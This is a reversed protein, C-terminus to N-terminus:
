WNDDSSLVSQIQFHTFGRYQLFRVQKDLERKSQPVDQGFRKERLLHVRKIWDVDNTNLMESFLEREIGRKLLEQQIHLPGFGKNIRARIYCEAFRADSLLNNQQLQIVLNDIVSQDFGKRTLKQRLELSAHERRSLYEIASSHAQTLSFPDIM